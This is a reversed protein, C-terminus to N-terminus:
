WASSQNFILQDWKISGTGKSASPSAKLYFGALATYRATDAGIARRTNAYLNALGQYRAADAAFIGQVNAKTEAATAAKNLLPITLVIIVILGIMAFLLNRKLLSREKQANTKTVPNM